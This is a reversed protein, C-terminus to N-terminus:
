ARLSRLAEAVKRSPEGAWARVDDEVSDLIAEPDELWGRLRLKVMIGAPTAARISLIKNCLADVHDLQARQAEDAQPEGLEEAIQKREAQWRERANDGAAIGHERVWVSYPHEPAVRQITSLEGITMKEFAESMGTPMPSDWSPRPCAGFVKEELANWAGNLEHWREQASRVEAELRVL